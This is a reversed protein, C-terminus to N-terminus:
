ITARQKEGMVNIIVRKGETSGLAALAEERSSVNIIYVDGGGDQATESVAQAVQDTPIIQGPVDPQFLETGGNENVPYIKGATVHGGGAKGAGFIDALGGLPGEGGGSAEIAKVILMKFILRTLDALMSDVMSKFDIKGTTALDVLADEASNFANVLTNEAATALDNVSTAISALGRQWGASLTTQSELGQAELLAYAEVSQQLSINGEDVLRNLEGQAAALNIQAGRVEDLVGSVQKVIQFHQLEARYAEQEAPLLAIGKKRVQTEIERVAASMRLLEIQEQIDKNLLQLARSQGQSTPAGDGTPATPGGADLAIKDLRAQAKQEARDFISNVSDEFVSTAMGQSFGDAIAQDMGILAGEAANEIRPIITLTAVDGFLKGMGPIKDVIADIAGLIKKLGIEFVGIVGNLLSITIDKLAPGLGSWIAKIVNVVGVWLGIYTDMIRASGKIFGEFSVDLDGFMAAWAGSVAPLASKLLALLTAAGERMREWTAAAFDGLSIISDSSVRIENRFTILLGIAYTLAVAIAGVPNAMLAATFMQVANTALFVAATFGAAGIFKSAMALNEAFWALVKGIARTAGTAQDMMGVFILMQNGLVTWRQGLTAMTTGFETDVEDRVGKFARLIIDATIAGEAGMKRLEGAGVGMEKAIIQAVAPLQEMVSNLEEGRLAGAALGQSLQILGAAAETSSAGSLAIAQNLTKTFQLMEKQSVGLEKTARTIRAFLEANSQFSSRTDNSIDLLQKTVNALNETGTTVLRLRNQILTFADAQRLLGRLVMAGGIAGLATKLLNVGQSSASATTGVERLRRQVIRSGKETVVINIRESAM